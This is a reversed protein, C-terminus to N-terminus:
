DQAHTDPHGNCQCPEGADAWDCRMQRRKAPSAYLYVNLLEVFRKQGHRSLQSFGSMLDAIRVDLSHPM